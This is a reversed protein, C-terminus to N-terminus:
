WGPEVLPMLGARNVNREALAGITRSLKVPALRLLGFRNALCSMLPPIRRNM